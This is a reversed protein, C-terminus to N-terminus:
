EHELLIVAKGRADGAELYYRAQPALSLACRRDLVLMVQGQECHETIYM